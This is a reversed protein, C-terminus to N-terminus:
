QNSQGVPPIHTESITGPDPSFQGVPPLYESPRQEQQPPTKEPEVPRVPEVPQTQQRPQPNQIQQNQRPQQPQQKPAQQTKQPQAPASQKKTTQTKNTTKPTSTKKKDAQKVIKRPAPMQIQKNQKVTEKKESAARAQKIEQKTPQQKPTFVQDPAPPNYLPKDARIQNDYNNEYTESYGPIKYTYIEEDINTDEAIIGQANPPTYVPSTGERVPLEEPSPPVYVAPAWSDGALPNSGPEPPTYVPVNPIEPDNPASPYNGKGIIVGNNATEVPYVRAPRKPDWLPTKESDNPYYVVRSLPEFAPDITVAKSYFYQAQYFGGTKEHYVGYWYWANPDNRNEQIARLLYPKAAEYRDQQMLEIGKQLSTQRQAAPKAPVTKKVTKKQTTTKKKTSTKKKTQTKKPTNNQPQAPQQTQPPYPYYPTSDDDVAYLSSASLMLFILVLFIKKM